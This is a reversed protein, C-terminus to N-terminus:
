ITADGQFPIVGLLINVEGHCCIDGLLECSISMNQGQLWLVARISGIGDVIALVVLCGGWDIVTGEQIICPLFLDLLNYAIEQVISL